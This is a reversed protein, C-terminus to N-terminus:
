AEGNKEKWERRRRERLEVDQMEGLVMENFEEWGDLYVHHGARKVILVKAEGGGVEGDKVERRGWGGGGKVDEGLGKGDGIWEGGGVWGERDLRRGERRIREQAGFGGAVDMWDVEGYMLVTPVGQWGVKGIRKILPNRAYAGPALLFALAYEGSGRQRFLSYAYKHLATSEDVPLQSFRRSTWGSVLRPGLPGSWRVLSFPSINQDWLYSLWKPVASRPPPKKNVSNLPSPNTTTSTTSTTTLTPKLVEDSPDLLEAEMGTASPPPPNSQDQPPNAPLPEKEAFPNEPIGVPSALILKKVRGPYKLTYATALYGGLSHGLLTFRDLGRKIRWEELADIFWEEAEKIKGAKDTANIKFQPRSSNGMGLLDLAWLKWGPRRSLTDFNRYFFGLGAGYGHLLVLDEKHPEATRAIAFENIARDKGSLYVLTSSCQRPGYPDPETPIVAPIPAPTSAGQCAGTPSPIPLTNFPLFSLVTAEAVRPPTSAWWQTLAEKYSLPFLSGSIRAPARNRALPSAQSREKVDAPEPSPMAASTSPSSSSSFARRVASLLWPPNSPETALTRYSTNQSASGATYLYAAAAAATSSTAALARLKISAVPFRLFLTKQPSPTLPGSVASRRSLGRSSNRTHTNLIYLLPPDSASASASPKALHKEVARLTSHPHIALLVAYAAAYASVPCLTRSVASRAFEREPQAARALNM